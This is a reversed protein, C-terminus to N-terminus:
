TGQELVELMYEWDTVLLRSDRQALWAAYREGEEIYKRDWGPFWPECAASQQTM